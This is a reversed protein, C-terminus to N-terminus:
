NRSPKRMHEDVQAEEVYKFRGITERVPLVALRSFSAKRSVADKALEYYDLILRLLKYQKNM